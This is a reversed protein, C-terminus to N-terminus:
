FINRRLLKNGRENISTLGILDYFYYPNEPIYDNFLSHATGGKSTNFNTILYKRLYKVSDKTTFKLLLATQTPYGYKPSFSPM